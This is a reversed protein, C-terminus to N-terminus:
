WFIGIWKQFLELHNWSMFFFLYFLSIQLSNEKSQNARKETSNFCLSLNKEREIWQSLVVNVFQFAFSVCITSYLHTYFGIFSFLSGIWVRHIWYVLSNITQLGFLLNWELWLMSTFFFNYDFHGLTATLIKMPINSKHFQVNKHQICKKARENVHIFNVFCRDSLSLRVLESAAISVNGNFSKNMLAM